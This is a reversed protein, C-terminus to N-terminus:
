ENENVEVKEWHYGGCTHQRGKLYSCINSSTKHGLFKAVEMQSNFIQGTEICRIKMSLKEHGRAIGTGYNINDKLTMWELNDLNNNSKNEDKHNVQWLDVNEIPQYTMLVLRHVRYARAKGKQSLTVYHYGDKDIAPKLFRNRKYTWIQGDRTAAYEGEYNPIDKMEIYM